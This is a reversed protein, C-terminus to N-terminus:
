SAVVDNHANGISVQGFGINRVVKTFKLFPVNATGRPVHPLPVSDIKRTMM